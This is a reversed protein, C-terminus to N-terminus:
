SVDAEDYRIPLLVQVPLLGLRRAVEVAASRSTVGLKRYISVCHSKVTHRSLYLQDAIAPFALNTPLFPLVRAEAQSLPSAYLSLPVAQAECTEGSGLELRFQSRAPDIRLRLEVGAAGADADRLARVMASVLASALAEMDAGDGSPDDSAPM